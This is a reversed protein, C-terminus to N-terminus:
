KNKLMLVNLDLPLKPNLRAYIIYSIYIMPLVLIFRNFWKIFLNRIMMQNLYIMLNAKNIMIFSVRERAIKIIGPNNHRIKLILTTEQRIKFM